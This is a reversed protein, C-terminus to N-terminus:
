QSQQTQQLARYMKNSGQEFARALKEKELWRLQAANQQSTYTEMVISMEMRLLKNQLSESVFCPDSRGDQRGASALVKEVESLRPHLTYDEAGGLCNVAKQPVVHRFDTIPVVAEQASSHQLTAFVSPQLIQGGTNPYTSIKARKLCGGRVDCISPSRETALVGTRRKQQGDRRYVTLFLVKRLLKLGNELVLTYIREVIMYVLMTFAISPMCIVMMVSDLLRLLM